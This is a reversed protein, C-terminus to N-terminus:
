GRYIQPAAINPMPMQTKNNLETMLMVIAPLSCIGIKKQLGGMSQVLELHQACEGKICKGRIFPCEKEKMDGQGNGNM